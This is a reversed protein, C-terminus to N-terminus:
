ATRQIHLHTGGRNHIDDCQILKHIFKHQVKSETNNSHYLTPKDCMQKNNYRHKIKTRMEALLSSSSSSYIYLIYQTPTPILHCKAENSLKQPACSPTLSDLLRGFIVTLRSHLKDVNQFFFLEFNGVRRLLRKESSISTSHLQALLSNWVVHVATHSSQGNLRPFWSTVVNLQIFTIIYRHSTDM